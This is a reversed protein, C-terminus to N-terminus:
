GQYFESPAINEQINIKTKSYTMLSNPYTKDNRVFLAKWIESQGMCVNECEVILSTKSKQVMEHFTPDVEIHVNKLRFLYTKKTQRDTKMVQANYTLKFAFQRPEIAFDVTNSYRPKWKFMSFNTGIEVPLACPTFILGDVKHDLKPMVTTMYRELGTLPVFEKIKLNMLKCSSVNSVVVAATQIRNEFSESVCSKGFACICDFTLFDFGRKGNKEILEGDLITGQTLTCRVTAELLFCENKRNVLIVHGQPPDGAEIFVLLFREGDTKETALYRESKLRSIHKREISIPQPGLFRNSVNSVGWMRCIEEQIKNALVSNESLAWVKGNALPILKM